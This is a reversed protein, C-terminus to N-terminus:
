ASSKRPLAARQRRSCPGAPNCKAATGAEGAGSGRAGGAAAFSMAAAPSRAHRRVRPLAPWIQGFFEARAQRDSRVDGDAGSGSGRPAIHPSARSGHPIMRHSDEQYFVADGVGAEHALRQELGVTVSEIHNVHAAQAVGERPQAGLAEVSHEQVEAQGIGPAELRQTRDAVGHGVNRNDHQAAQEVLLDRDLRDLAPRLVIQELALAVPAQDRAGQTVRDLALAGLLVDMVEGGVVPQGPERVAPQQEITQALRQRGGATLLPQERQQEDIEVAELGDVVGKPVRDTVLDELVDSRAQRRAHALAVGDRAEAPVLERDDELLNGVRLVGVPERGLDELGELSREGEPAVMMADRRADADAEVRVVALAGFGQHPRGVQRHVAGLLAAATVVLEM